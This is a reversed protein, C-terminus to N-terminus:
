PIPGAKPKGDTTVQLGQAGPDVGTDFIAIVVGRGDTCFCAMQDAQQRWHKGTSSMAMGIRNSWLTLPIRGRLLIIERM